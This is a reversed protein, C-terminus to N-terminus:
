EDSKLNWIGSEGGTKNIRNVNWEQGGYPYIKNLSASFRWGEVSNGTLNIM